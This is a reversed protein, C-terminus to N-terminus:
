VDQHTEDNALPTTAGDDLSHNNSTKDEMPTKQENDGEGTGTSEKGIYNYIFFGASLLGAFVALGGIVGGVIAGNSSDDGPDKSFCLKPKFETSKTAKEGLANEVTCYYISDDNENRSIQVSDGVHSFGNPGTWKFKAEVPPVLSCKLTINQGNQECTVEPKTLPDIVNITIAYYQLVGKVQFQATYAGSDNKTLVVSLDGNARNFQARDKLRYWVPESKGEWEVVLNGNLRWDGLEIDGTIGSTFNYVTGTAVHICDVCGAFKLLKVFPHKSPVCM